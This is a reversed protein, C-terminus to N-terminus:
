PLAKPSMLSFKYCLLPSAVSLVPPKRVGYGVLGLTYCRNMNSSKFGDRTPGGRSAHHPQVGPLRGLVIALVYGRMPAELPSM